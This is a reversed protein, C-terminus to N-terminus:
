ASGVPLVITFRTGKGVETGVDIWGGHDQVIGHSVALGLGTGAGIDKTTFFPEFIHPLDDPAIGHGQDVVSVCLCEGSRGPHGAPPSTERRSLAIELRGGAPMAQAGNVLLNTLVQRIQRGDVEIRADVTDDLDVEVEVSRRFTPQVEVVTSRILDRLDISSKDLKKRRAFQLLQRVIRTVRDVQDTIISVNEQIEQIERHQRGLRKARGSIVNLPTGLEHAVGAALKGITALREAHQLEEEAKHRAEEEARARSDAELLSRSM